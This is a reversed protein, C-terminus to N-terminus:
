ILSFSLVILHGDTYFPFFSPPLLTPTRKVATSLTYTVMPRGSEYGKSRIEVISWRGGEGGGGSEGRVEVGLGWREGQYKGDCM